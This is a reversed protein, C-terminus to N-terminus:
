LTKQLKLAKQINIRSEEDNQDLLLAKKWLSIAKPFEAMNGYIAAINKIDQLTINKDRLINELLKRAEQQMGIQALCNAIGTVADNNYPDIRYGKEYYLLALQPRGLKNYLDGLNLYTTYARPQIQAAKQYHLIAKAPDKKAEYILGLMDQIKWNLRPESSSLNALTNLARDYQGLMYYAGALDLHAVANDPSYKLIHRCLTIDNKWIPNAMITSLGFFSSLFILWLSQKQRLIQSHFILAALIGISPLYLWHEAMALGMTPFIYIMMLLPLFCIMSWLLGFGTIRWKNKIAAMIFIALIVSFIITGITPTTIVPITRMLYLPYPFFILVAYEKLINLINLLELPLPLPSMPLSTARTLPQDILGRNMLYFCAIIIIGGCSLLIKKWPLHKYIAVLLALLPFILSNERSMFAATALILTIAYYRLRDTQFYHQLSILGLLVFFACLLDARGSIYSVASTQIPHVCFIIATGVALRFNGFISSLLVFIFYANLIHILINTLHFGSPTLKWIYYDLSYSALLLPRYYGSREIDVSRYLDSFFVSPLSQLNKIYPNSVILPYDDLVFHYTLTSGYIMFCIMALMILILINKAQPRLLTKIM